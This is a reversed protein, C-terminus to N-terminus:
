KGKISFLKYSIALSIKPNNTYWSVYNQLLERKTHYKVEVGFNKYAIGGGLIFNNGESAELVTLNSIKFNDTFSLCHTSNFFVNVFCKIGTKMYLTYRCGIPFTISEVNMTQEYALKKESNFIHEYTPVFLLSWTNRNFPLFYEVELGGAWNIKNDFVYIGKSITSNGVLLSNHNVYGVVKLNFVERAQKEFDTRECYDFASNYQKFYKSLAPIDYKISYVDVNKTNDNQLYALLQQKFYENKATENDVLYEKYILQEPNSNNISYFFWSRAPETYIWLTAKGCVLEKLFVTEESWQPKKSDSLLNLDVPTRDIKVKARVYHSFDYVGFEKISDIKGTIVDTSDTLKYQIKSPNSYWDYNKIFCETKINNNGVVFGKNFTIQSFCLFNSQIIFIMLLRVSKHSNM